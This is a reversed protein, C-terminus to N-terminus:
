TARKIVEVLDRVDFASLQESTVVQIEERRPDLRIVKLTPLLLLLESLSCLRTAEADAVDLIVISPQAAIIQAM